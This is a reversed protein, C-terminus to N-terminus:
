VVHIGIDHDVDNSNEGVTICEYGKETCKGPPAAGDTCWTTTTTGTAGVPVKHPHLDSFASYM